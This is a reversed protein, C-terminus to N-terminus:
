IYAKNHSKFICRLDDTKSSYTNEASIHIGCWNRTRVSCRDGLKSRAVASCPAHRNFDSPTASSYPFRVSPAMAQQEWIQDLTRIESDSNRKLHRNFDHWYKIALASAIDGKLAIHSRARPQAVQHETSSFHGHFIWPVRPPPQILLSVPAM